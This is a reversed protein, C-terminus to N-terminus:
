GTCIDPSRARRPRGQGRMRPRLTALRAARTARRAAAKDTCTQWHPVPAADGDNCARDFLSAARPLDTVPGKGRVARRLKGCGLTVTDTCAKEYLRMADFGGPEQGLRVCAAPEGAMCASRYLELARNEDRAVVTGAEYLPRGRYLRPSIGAARADYLDLVSTERPAAASPWRQSSPAHAAAAAGVAPERLARKARTASRCWAGKRPAWGALACSEIGGARCSTMSCGSRARM